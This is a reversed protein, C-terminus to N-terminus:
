PKHGTDEVRKYLYNRTRSLTDNLFLMDIYVVVRSIKNELIGRSTLVMKDWDIYTDVEKGGNFVKIEMFKEPSTREKRCEDIVEIIDNTCTDNDYAKFMDYMSILIPANEQEEEFDGELIIDWGNKNQVPIKSLVLPEAVKVMDTPDTYVMDEFEHYSFYIFYKPSPMRVTMKLELGYNTQTMGQREGTDADLEIDRCNVMLEPVRVYFELRRNVKRLKYLFTLSSHSNLYNLLPIPDAPGDKEEDWKFNLEGCLRRIMTGPVHFDVDAYLTMTKGVRCQMLLYDYLEFQMPQQTVRIRFTINMMNLRSVLGLMVNNKDDRFFTNADRFRNIYAQLTTYDDDIYDRNYGLEITPVIALSPRQRKVWDKITWRRMEAFPDHGDINISKFFTKDGKNLGGFKKLFWESMFQVAISYGDIRSSQFLAANLQHKEVRHIEQISVPKLVPM